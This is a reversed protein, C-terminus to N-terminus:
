TIIAIVATPVVCCGIVFMFLILGIQSLFQLNGLSDKPFLVASIEPFYHGILSPGLVIGAIIEGIVSPQGIKKCIWGFLRAVLIITIIQALLISLPHELNHKMSSLFDVWHGKADPSVIGKQGAELLKGKLIIWYMLSSFGGIIAVYFFSNKVSKMPRKKQNLDILVVFIPLGIPCIFSKM